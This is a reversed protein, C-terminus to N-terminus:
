LNLKQFRLTSTPTSVLLISVSNMIFDTTSFFMGTLMCAFLFFYVASDNIINKLFFDNDLSLVSFYIIFIDSDPIHYAEIKGIEAM